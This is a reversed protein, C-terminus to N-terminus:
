IDFDYKCICKLSLYIVETGGIKDSEKINEIIIHLLSYTKLLYEM